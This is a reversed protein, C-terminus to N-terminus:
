DQENVDREQRDPVRGLYTTLSDIAGLLPRRWVNPDDDPLIESRLALVQRVADVLHVPVVTWGVESQEAVVDILATPNPIEPIATDIAAIVLTAADRVTKHAKSPM